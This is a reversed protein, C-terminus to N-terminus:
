RDARLHSCVLAGNLSVLCQLHQARKNHKGKEMEMNRVPSHSTNESCTKLGAHGECLMKSKNENIEM